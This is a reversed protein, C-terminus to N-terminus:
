HPILMLSRKLFKLQEKSFTKASGPINVPFMLLDADPCSAVDFIVGYARADMMASWRYPLFFDTNARNAAGSKYLGTKLLEPCYPTDDFGDELISLDYYNGLDDLTSTTHRLGFFHGTEHIAVNVIEEASLAREETLTLVHTGVVVTSGVGGKLNMAFLGGSGLVNVEEIRYVLAIDLAERVGKEPWGGLESVAFDVDDRRAIWLAKPPYKAGLTPHDEAHRVYITDIVVSTYSKRFGEILLRVLSDVGITGEIPEILGVTILNLSLTDSFTGFGEFQINKTTGKYYDGDQELTAAWLSLENEECLFSYVYRGDRVEPKLTKIKTLAFPYEDDGSSYSRFLQLNPSERSSDRDFSLEYRGNPHVMLVTGTPFHSEVSDGQTPANPYLVFLNNDLPLLVVEPDEEESCSCFFALFM